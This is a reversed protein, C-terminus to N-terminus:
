KEKDYHESEFSKGFIEIGKKDFVDCIRSYRSHDCGEFMDKAKQKCADEFLYMLVKNKFVAVFAKNASDNSEDTNFFHKSIFFPGLLKDENIRLDSMKANIAKRLKNWDYVLTGIKIISKVKSDNNDIGIYEFNWRRKFATDMPFVGQDASNMTAWIFMNNPIQIKDYDAVSGGLEEVLYKKIDESPAIEYESVGDANRDLLQFVEGFVAAVRARNLEEILLIHPRPSDTRGSKYAEVLVRMFPGAVYKYDIGDDTSVPKYCGVFGAYSYEPHFTVREFTASEAKVLKQVDENLTHSKGTGPAGFLIRNMSYADNKYTTKFRIKLSPTLNAQLFKGYLTLMASITGNSNARNIDKYDPHSKIVDVAAAFENYDVIEYIHEFPPFDFLEDIKNAIISLKYIYAEAYLQTGDAKKHGRLWAAFREKQDEMSIMSLETNFAGQQWKNILDRLEDFLKRVLENAPASSDLDLDQVAYDAGNYVVNMDPKVKVSLSVCHKSDKDFHPNLNVWAYNLYNANDQKVQYGRAFRCTLEFGNYKNWAKILETSNVEGENAFAKQGADVGNNINLQKVFFRLLLKFSTYEEETAPTKHWDPNFEDEENLLAKRQTVVSDFLAKALATYEEETIEVCKDGSSVAILVKQYIAESASCGPTIDLQKELFLKDASGNQTATLMMRIKNIPAAIYGLLLDGQQVQEASKCSFSIEKNALTDALIGDLADITIIWYKM